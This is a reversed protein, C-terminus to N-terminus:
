TGCFDHKFLSNFLFFFSNLRRELESEVFAEFADQSDNEDADESPASSAKVPYSFTQQSVNENIRVKKTPLNSIETEKSRKAPHVM